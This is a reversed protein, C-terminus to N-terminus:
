WDIAEDEAFARHAVRGIAEDWRAASIGGVHRKTTLNELGFREGQPIARAAVIAKRAAQRTDLEVAAPRKLPSGLVRGARRVSHVFQIFEKLELSARHDPGPLDRDTTFHKEIVVAGLAVAAISAEVGDTHDSYGVPVAFAHALSCMARLHVDDVPTPYASTCHLLTVQDRALGSGTLTDLATEVEGLTAMGTSMIVPRGAAGVQRLYPVNTIEGSPVKLVDVNLRLLLDLSASDFATSLFRINRERCRDMLRRHDGETLELRKLFEAQTTDGTAARQYDAARAGATVLRATSFTQFKVFDAGAEAAGDVLRCALAMDGNHNVGAEAIVTVSPVTTTM